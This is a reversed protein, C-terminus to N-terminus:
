GEDSRYSEVSRHSPWAAPTVKPGALADAAGHGGFMGRVCTVATVVGRGIRGSTAQQHHAGPRELPATM